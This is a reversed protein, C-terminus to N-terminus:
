PRSARVFQVSASDAVGQLERGAAAFRGSQLNRAVPRYRTMRRQPCPDMPCLAPAAWVTGPLGMFLVRM